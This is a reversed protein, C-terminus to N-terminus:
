FFGEFFFLAAGSAATADGLFPFVLVADSDVGAQSKRLKRSIASLFDTAWNQIQAEVV